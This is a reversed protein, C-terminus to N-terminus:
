VLFTQLVFVQATGLNRRRLRLKLEIECAEPGDDLSPRQELSRAKVGRREAQCHGGDLKGYWNDRSFANGSRHSATRSQRMAVTRM